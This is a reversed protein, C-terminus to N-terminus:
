PGRRLCVVEGRQARDTRGGVIELKEVPIHWSPHDRGLLHAVALGMERPDLVPAIVTIHPSWLEPVTWGAIEAGAQVLNQHLDRHLADIADDRVVPVHLSPGFPASRSWLGYGHARITFPPIDSVTARVVARVTAVDLDTFAMLTVHPLDPALRDPTGLVDAVEAAVTRVAVDHDRDLPLILHQM